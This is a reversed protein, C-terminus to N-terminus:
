EQAILKRVMGWFFDGNKQTTQQGNGPFHTTFIHRITSIQPHPLDGQCTGSLIWLWKPITQTHSL